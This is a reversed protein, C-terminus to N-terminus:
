GAEGPDGALGALIAKNVDVLSKVSGAGALIAAVQRDVFLSLSILSARIETPLNNTPSVLDLRMASWFKVNRALAPRLSGALITLKESATEASDFHEQHTALEANIQALIRREVQKPSETEVITRRYAALSM